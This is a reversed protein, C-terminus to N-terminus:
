STVLRFSELCFHAQPKHPSAQKVRMRRSPQTTVSDLLLCPHSRTCRYGHSKDEPIPAASALSSTTLTVLPFWDETQLSSSTCTLEENKRVEGEEFGSDLKERYM